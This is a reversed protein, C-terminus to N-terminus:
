AEQLPESAPSKAKESVKKNRAFTKRISLEGANVATIWFVSAIDWLPAPRSVNEFNGARLASLVAPITSSEANVVAYSYNIRHLAHTDSTAVVPLNYKKAAQAAQKNRDMLGRYFWSQEVADFLHHYEDLKEKLSINGYYYPHPAMIFCEPHSARYVALDHFTKVQEAEKTANIILVHAGEITKEIGPILLVNKKQAYQALESTFHFINHLTITIAGFGQKAAEDIAAFADYRIFAREIPDDNTHFHLNIKIQM